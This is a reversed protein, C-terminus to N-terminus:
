KRMCSNHMQSYKISCTQLIKRTCIFLLHNGLNLLSHGHHLPYPMPREFLLDRPQYGASWPPTLDPLADWRLNSRHWVLISTRVYQYIFMLTKGGISKTFVVLQLWIQSRQLLLLLVNECHIRVEMVSGESSYLAALVSKQLSFSLYLNLKVKSGTDPQLMSNSIIHILNESNLFKWYSWWM